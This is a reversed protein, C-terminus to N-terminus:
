SPSLPPPPSPTSDRKLIAAYEAHRWDDKYKAKVCACIWRAFGCPEISLAGDGESADPAAVFRARSRPLKRHKGLVSHYANFTYGPIGFFRGSAARLVFPLPAMSESFFLPASKDLGKRSCKKQLV